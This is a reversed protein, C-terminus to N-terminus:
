SIIGALVGAVIEYTINNAVLYELFQNYGYKFKDKSEDMMKQTVEIEIHGEDIYCIEGSTTHAAVLYTFKEDYWDFIVPCNGSGDYDEILPSHIYINKNETVQIIQAGCTSCFQKNPSLYGSWHYHERNKPCRYVIHEQEKEVKPVKLYAGIYLESM